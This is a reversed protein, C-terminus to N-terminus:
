IHAGRQSPGRANPVAGHYSLVVAQRERLTSVTGRLVFHRIGHAISRRVACCMQNCANYTTPVLYRYLISFYLNIICIDPGIHSLLTFYGQTTNTVIFMRNISDKLAICRVLFRIVPIALHYM